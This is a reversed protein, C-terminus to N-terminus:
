QLFPNSITLSRAPDYMAISVAGAQTFTHQWNSENEDCEPANLCYHWIVEVRGGVLPYEPTWEQWTNNELDTALLLIKRGAINQFRLSARKVCGFEDTSVTDLSPNLARLMDTQVKIAQRLQVLKRHHEKLTQQWANFLDANEHRVTDKNQADLMYNGTPKPPPLQEPRPTDAPFPPVIITLVTSSPDFSNSNILNVYVVLGSENPEVAQDIWNAVANNAEQFDKRPYSSTIDACYQVVRYPQHAMEIPQEISSIPTAKTQTPPDPLGLSGCSELLLTALLLILPVTAKVYQKM